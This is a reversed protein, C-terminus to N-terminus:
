TLQFVNQASCSYFEFKWNKGKEYAIYPTQPSPPTQLDVEFNKWLAYKNLLSWTSCTKVMALKFNFGERNIGWGLTPLWWFVLMMLHQGICFSLLRFIWARISLTKEISLPSRCCKLESMVGISQSLVNMCLTKLHGISDHTMLRLLKQLQVPIYLAIYM